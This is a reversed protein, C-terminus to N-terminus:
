ATWCDWYGTSTLTIGGFSITDYFMGTAFIDGNPAVSIDQVTAEAFQSTGTISVKQIWQWNGNADAKAIWPEIYQGSTISTSGLTMTTSGSIVGSVVIENNPSTDLSRLVAPNAASGTASWDNSNRLTLKNDPNHSLIPADGDPLDEHDILPNASMLLLSAIITFAIVFNMLKTKPM